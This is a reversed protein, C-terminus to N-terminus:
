NLWSTRHPWPNSTALPVETTVCSIVIVAREWFGDTAQNVSQQGISDQTPVSCAAVAVTLDNECQSHDLPGCKAFRGGVGDQWSQLSSLCRVVTAAIHGGVCSDKFCHKAFNHFCRSTPHAYDSSHSDFIVIYVLTNARNSSLM